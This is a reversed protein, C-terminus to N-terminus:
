LDDAPQLDGMICVAEIDVASSLMANRGALAAHQM